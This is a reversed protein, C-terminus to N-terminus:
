FFGPGKWIFGSSVIYTYVHLRVTTQLIFLLTYANYLPIHIYIYTVCLPIHPICAITEIAGQRHTVSESDGLYPLLDEVMFQVSMPPSPLLSLFLSFRLHFLFLPDMFDLHMPIMLM